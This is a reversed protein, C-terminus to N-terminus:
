PNVATAAKHLYIGATKNQEVFVGHAIRLNFRWADADQVQQPSFLRPAEHKVIQFVASRDVILFNIPYSTGDTPIIYKGAEQGSTKGDLLTIKTVFRDKPVRILPMDDFYEVMRNINRDDNMVMRTVHEKINKYFSNSVFCVRGERPVEADALTLDADDLLSVGNSSVSLDASVTTGANQAYHSFRIADMEPVVQTRYFENALAGLALGLTEDNDLVDVLFSRGRDYQLEHLEWAGGSNGTVYGQNRSYNGLGQVTLKYLYVGKAGDFRIRGSEVTTDLIASKSADQYIGDLIPLFKNALAISNNVGSDITTFNNAM